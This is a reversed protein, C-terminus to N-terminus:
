VRELAQSIVKVSEDLRIRADKRLERLRKRLDADVNKASPVAAELKDIFKQLDILDETLEALEEDLHAVIANACRVLHLLEGARESRNRGYLAMAMSTALSADFKVVDGENINLARLEHHVKEANEPTYHHFNIITTLVKHPEIEKGYRTRSFIQRATPICEGCRIITERKFIM